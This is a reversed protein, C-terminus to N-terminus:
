ISKSPDWLSTLDLHTDPLLWVALGSFNRHVTFSRTFPNQGNTSNRYSKQCSQAFKDQFCSSNCSPSLVKWQAESKLFLFQIQFMTRHHIKNINKCLTGCFFDLLDTKSIVETGSNWGWAPFVTYSLLGLVRTEAQFVSDHGLTFFWTILEIQIQETNKRCNITINNYWHKHPHLWFTQYSNMLKLILLNWQWHHKYLSQQFGM